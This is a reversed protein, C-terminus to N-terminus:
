SAQGTPKLYDPRARLSKSRREYWDAMMRGAVERSGLGFALAAAVAVAGLVLTFAINVLEPALQLERLAMFGAVAIIGGRAGNALLGRSRGSSSEPAAEPSLARERAMMRERVWDGFFVAAGFILVAGFVHPLYALFRSLGNAIFELTWARATQMLTAVMGIGFVVSYGWRPGVGGGDDHEDDMIHLRHLLRDVGVRRLLARAARALFLSVLYGVFLIVFGALLNPLFGVIGGFATRLWEATSTM